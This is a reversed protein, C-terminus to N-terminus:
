VAPAPSSQPLLRKSIWFIPASSPAADSSVPQHLCQPPGPLRRSCHVGSTICSMMWCCRSLGAMHAMKGSWTHFM